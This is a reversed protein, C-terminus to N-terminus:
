EGEPAPKKPARRPGSRGLNKRVWYDRRQGGRTARKWGCTPSAPFSGTPEGYCRRSGREFDLVKASHIKAKLM